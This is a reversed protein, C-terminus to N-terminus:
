GSKQQQSNTKSGTNGSGFKKSVPPRFRAGPGMGFVGLLFVLAVVIASVIGYLIEM